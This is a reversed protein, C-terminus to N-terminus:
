RWASSGSGHQRYQSTASDQGGELLPGLRELNREWNYHRLVFERNGPARVPDGGLLGSIKEAFAGPDLVIDRSLDDCPHIGEAAQPTLVVRREMAMAELVKNQVGRAIRLPAVAVHAHALWPRVDPVPGTVRIGDIKGLKRVAPAPHSGVIYFRAAPQASQVAPFVNRGFWDVADVNAHYDMAGTFVIAREGSSYPKTGSADPSFYAADVGNEITHIRHASEPALSMFLAAEAPSVFISADFERAIRREAEFLREAERRYIAGGLRGRAEGYQRWKDSDMDVFDMVRRAHAHPLAFHAMGSSFVFIRDIGHRQVVEDVWSQMAPHRYYAETLAERRILGGLSRLRAFRPDLSPLCASACMKELVPVHERDAPDDVFAGLHVRYRHTLWKVFHYSRIKDGKNPPFPIRHALFLLDEV